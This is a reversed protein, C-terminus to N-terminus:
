ALQLTKIKLNHLIYFHHFALNIVTSIQMIKAPLGVPMQTQGLSASFTLLDMKAFLTPAVM